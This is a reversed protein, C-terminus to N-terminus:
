QFFHPDGALLRSGVASIAMDTKARQTLLENLSGTQLVYNVSGRRELQIEDAVKMIASSNTIKQVLSDITDIDSSQKNFVQIGFYVLCILPIVAILMLKRPLPLQM